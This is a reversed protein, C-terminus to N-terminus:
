KRRKRTAKKKPVKAALEENMDVRIYGDKEHQLAEAESTAERYGHPGKLHITM